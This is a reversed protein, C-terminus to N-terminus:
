KILPKAPVGVLTAAKNIDNVVVAGAGVITQAAINVQNIVTSGVGLYVSEHLYVEGSVNVGPMFSTYSSVITDHGISCHTNIIVFDHIKVNCSIVVAPCIINGIGLTTEDVQLDVTPYVLNPFSLNKNEVLQAVLKKRILPNAIAIAVAVPKPYAKIQDLGGLVPVNNITQNTTKGDDFYGLLNYEKNLKNIADIITKTDRGFGGAGYIVIDKM